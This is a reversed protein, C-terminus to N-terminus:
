QVASPTWVLILYSYIDSPPLPDTSEVKQTSALLRLHIVSLLCTQQIIKCFHVHQHLSPPYLFWSVIVDFVCKLEGSDGEKMNCNEVQWWSVRSREGHFNWDTIMSIEITSREGHFNLDSMMSMMVMWLSYFRSKQAFSHAMDQQLTKPVRHGIYMHQFYLNLKQDLRMKLNENM